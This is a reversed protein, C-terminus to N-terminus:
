IIIFAKMLYAGGVFPEVVSAPAVLVGAIAALVAGIVFGVASVAEYNIGQLQAAERDEAVARMAKGIKTGRVVLYLIATMILSLVLVALRENALVAGAVAVQGPFVTRVDKAGAGFAIAFGMQLVMSLAVSVILAGLLDGKFRSFVMREAVLGVAAAVVVAAVFAVAYALLPNVGYRGPLDMGEMILYTVFAALTYFEGHAFNVVKMVGFVLTLGLAFLVYVGGIQLGNVILQLLLSGQM